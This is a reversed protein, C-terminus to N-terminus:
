ETGTWDTRRNVRDEADEFISFTILHLNVLVCILDALHRYQKRSLVLSM